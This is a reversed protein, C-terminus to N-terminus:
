HMRRGSQVAADGHRQLHLNRAESLPITTRRLAPHVGSRLALPRTPATSSLAGLLTCRLINAAGVFDRDLVASCESCFKLGRVIRTKKTNTSTAGARAAAARGAESSTPTTTGTAATAAQVRAPVDPGRARTLVCDHARTHARADCAYPSLHPRSRGRLRARERDHVSAHAFMRACGLGRACQCLCGSALARTLPCGSAPAHVNM